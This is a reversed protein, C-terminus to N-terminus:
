HDRGEYMGDRSERHRLRVVITSEDNTSTNWRGTWELKSLYTSDWAEIFSVFRM